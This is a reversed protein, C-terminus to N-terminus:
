PSSRHQLWELTRCLGERISVQPCWGLAARALSVDLVSVPVDVPRAARHVVDVPCLAQILDLIERLSTGDGSGINFIREPGAHSLVAHMAAVVDDIYVYDRVVSGDGWIEIAGGALARELWTGIVGQGKRGLQWPGYPNSIRLIRLDLGRQWAHVRLVNEMALKGAGYMTIPNCAADESTPVAVDSGYVTGGSSAYVLRLSREVCIDAIRSALALGKLMDQGATQLDTGPLSGHPLYVLAQCGEVLLELVGPTGADGDLALALGEPPVMWSRSLAHVRHGRATLGRLLNTGIFGGAGAVAISGDGPHM